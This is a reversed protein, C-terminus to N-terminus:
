DLPIAQRGRPAHELALRAVAFGLEQVATMDFHYHLAAYFRAVGAEGVDAILRAVAAPFFNRLVGVAARHAM